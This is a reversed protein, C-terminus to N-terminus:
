DGSRIRGDADNLGCTPPSLFLLHNQWGGQIVRGRFPMGMPLDLVHATVRLTWDRANGDSRCPIQRGKPSPLSEVFARAIPCAAPWFARDTWVRKATMSGPRLSKWCHRCPLSRCCACRRQRTQRCWQDLLDIPLSLGAILATTFPPIVDARPCM